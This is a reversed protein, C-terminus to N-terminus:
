LTTPDALTSIRVQQERGQAEFTVEATFLRLSSDPWSETRTTWRYQSPGEKIVGSSGIMSGRTPALSEALVREAIRAAVAKRQSVQGAFSALQIGHVAVPIVIALFLLAALTEVLTFGRQSGISARMTRSANNSLLSTPGFRM